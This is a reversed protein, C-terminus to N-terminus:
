FKSNYSIQQKALRYKTYIGGAIMMVIKCVLVLYKRSLDLDKFRGSSIYTGLKMTEKCAVESMVIEFSSLEEKWKECNESLLPGLTELKWPMEFSNVLSAATRSFDLMNPEFSIELRECISNLVIKPDAILREYFVEQYRNGFLMKGTKKGLRLQVRNAFVHQLSPRGSSWIARKKKVLVDRPDRVLHIVHANPWNRNLLPLYEILRPDKDGVYKSQTDRFCAALIRNYVAVESFKERSRWFPAFIRKLDIGIQGVRYDEQLLEFVLNIGGREYAKQLAHTAIFRRIFATEPLFTVKSHSGLMSQLLSTGSRGVGCIFIIPLKNYM